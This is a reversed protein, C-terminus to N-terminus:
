SADSRRLSGINLSRATAPPAPPDGLDALFESHPAFFLGGTVAVSFDLIRDHRGPPDGIFMNELMRETVAPDAAYGIFYTGFEGAGPRGFPMNDRLIELEEGDDDTISTLAVHSDAPQEDDSLEVDSLKRRGIVREQDETTLANWAEMDHLYKQVIVYSGGEFGPEDTLVAAAAGAGVPNETGDVFGLLDRQEFYRFGHVEDVVTVAGALRAAILSALEFCLDMRRARIHFLLDGPTAIATHRAGHFERFPHLGSPADGLRLRPWVAAGIATVCTLDGDASRFGVARTLGGVDALLGRVVDEGGEDVTAVLFIAAETLSGLVAQPTAPDTM